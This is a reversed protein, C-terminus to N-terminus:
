SNRMILEFPFDKLNMISYNKITGIPDSNLEGGPKLVVTKILDSLEMSIALYVTGTNKGLMLKPFSKQKTPPM